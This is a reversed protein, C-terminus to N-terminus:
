SERADNRAVFTQGMNQELVDSVGYVGELDAAVAITEVL